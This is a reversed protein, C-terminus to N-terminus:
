EHPAGKFVVAFAQAGLSVWEGLGAALHGEVRNSLVGGYSSDWGAAIAQSAHKPLDFKDDAISFYDYEDGTARMLACRQPNHDRATAAVLALFVQKNSMNLM